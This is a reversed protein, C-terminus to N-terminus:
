GTSPKAQGDRSIQGMQVDGGVLCMLLCIGAAQSSAGYLEVAPRSAGMVMVM